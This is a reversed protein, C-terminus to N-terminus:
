PAAGDRLGSLNRRTRLEDAVRRILDEKKSAGRTSAGLFGLIEKLAAVTLGFERLREELQENPVTSLQEIIAEPAVDKKAGRQGRGRSRGTKAAEGFGRLYDIIQDLSQPIQKELIQEQTPWMQLARAFDHLFGAVKEIAAVIAQQREEPPLLNLMLRLQEFLEVDASPQDKRM